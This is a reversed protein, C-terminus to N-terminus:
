ASAFMTVLILMVALGFVWLILSGWSVSDQQIKQWLNSESNNRTAM